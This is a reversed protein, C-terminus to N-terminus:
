GPLDAQSTLRVCRHPPRPTRHHHHPLPPPPTSSRVDRRVDAWPQGQVRMQVVVERGSSFCPGGSTLPYISPPVEGDLFGTASSEAKAAPLGM